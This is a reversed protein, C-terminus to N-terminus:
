LHLNSRYTLSKDLALKNVISSDVSEVLNRLIPFGQMLIRGPSFEQFSGCKPFFFCRKKGGKQTNSQSRQLLLCILLFCLKYIYNIHITHSM